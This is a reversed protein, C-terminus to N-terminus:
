VHQGLESLSLLIMLVLVIETLLSCSNIKGVKEAVPFNSSFYDWTSHRCIVETFHASKLLTWLEVGPGCETKQM